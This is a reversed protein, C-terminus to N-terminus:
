INDALEPKNIVALKVGYDKQLTSLYEQTEMEDNCPFYIGFNVGKEKLNRVAESIYQFDYVVNNVDVIFTDGATFNNLILEQNLSQVFETLFGFPMLDLGRSKLANNLNIKQFHHFSSFFVNNQLGRAILQDLITGCITPDSDKIELNIIFDQNQTMERKVMDLVLELSPIIDRITEEEM